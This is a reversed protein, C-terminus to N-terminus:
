GLRGGHAQFHPVDPRKQRILATGARANHCGHLLARVVARRLRRQWHHLPRSHLRRRVGVAHGGRLSAHEVCSKCVRGALSGPLFPAPTCRRQASGAGVRCWGQVPRTGRCPRVLTSNQSALTGGTDGAGGYDAQLVANGAKMTGMDRPPHPTLRWLLRLTKMKAFVAVLNRM